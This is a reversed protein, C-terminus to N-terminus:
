PLPAIGVLYCAVPLVLSAAPVLWGLPPLPVSRSPRGAAAALLAELRRDTAARFSAGSGAVLADTRVLAAALTAPSTGHAM